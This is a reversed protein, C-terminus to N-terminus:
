NYQKEYDIMRSIDKIRNIVFDRKYDSDDNEDILIQIFNVLDTLQMYIEYNDKKSFESLNNIYDKIYLNVNYYSKILNEKNKSSYIERLCFHRLEGLNINYTKDTEYALLSNIISIIETNDSNRGNLLKKEKINDILRLYHIKSKESMEAHRLLYYLHDLIHEQESEDNSNLYKKYNELKNLFYENKHTNIHRDRIYNKQRINILEDVFKKDIGDEKNINKNYAKVFGDSTYILLLQNTNHYFENLLEYRGGHKEGNVENFWDEKVDDTIFIIDKKELKAKEMMSFFIYYDGNEEKQVDKYGPPIKNEIRRKGEERLEVYQESSFDDGISENFLKIMKDEIENKEFNPKKEEKEKELIENIKKNCQNLLETIENKCKLQSNKRTNIEDTASNFLERLKDSLKSYENYSNAIVSNKNNFYEKGVQYPLWLRNKLNNLIKFMEKRTDKSYRYFNLLINTDAVIISNNWIRQYEEETYLIYGKFLNSLNNTKEM